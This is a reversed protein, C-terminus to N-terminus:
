VNWKPKHSYQSVDLVLEQILLKPQLNVAYLIVEAIDNASMKEKSTVISSMDTDIIGPTVNMIKPLTKCMLEKVIVEQQRKSAEYNVLFDKLLPHSVQKSEEIITCKSGINIILKNKNEWRSVLEKLLETQAFHDYMDYANNVFIDCDNSQELIISRDKTIDYGTSKSFGVVQHGASTFQHSIALGLGRTHGTIAIKM